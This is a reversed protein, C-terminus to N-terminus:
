ESEHSDAGAGLLGDLHRDLLNRLEILSDTTMNVRAVVKGMAEGQETISTKDLFVCDLRSESGYTSVQFMNSFCGEFNGMDIGLNANIQNNEEM